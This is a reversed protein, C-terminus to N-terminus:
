PAGRTRTSEIQAGIGTPAVHQSKVRFMLAVEGPSCSNLHNGHVRLIKIPILFRQPDATGASTVLVPANKSWM